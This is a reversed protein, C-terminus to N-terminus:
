DFMSCKLPTCNILNGSVIPQIYMFAPFQMRAFPQTIAQSTSLRAMAKAIARFYICLRISQSVGPKHIVKQVIALRDLM